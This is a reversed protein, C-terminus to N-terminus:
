IDESSNFFNVRKFWKDHFKTSSLLALGIPTLTLDYSRFKERSEFYNSRSVLVSTAGILVVFVFVFVFIQDGIVGFDPM